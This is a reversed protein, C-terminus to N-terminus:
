RSFTVIAYGDGGAACATQGGAARGPPLGTTLGPAPVSSGMNTTGVCRGGGGGGGGRNGARGAGGCGSGGASGPEIVSDFFAAAQAGGGGGGGGAILIPVGNVSLFSSAGGGGGYGSDGLAGDAEGGGGGGNHGTGGRNGESPRGGPGGGEAVEDEGDEGAGDGGEGGDHAPFGANTGREECGRGGGGIHVELLGSVSLTSAAYGGAGGAGGAVLPTGVSEGAAGGGGWLRVTAYGCGPPVTLRAPSGVEFVLRAPGGCQPVDEDLNGDCDDDIGNGPPVADDSGTSATGPLCSDALRGAECRLQGTRACAGVGCRSQEVAFDEDVNGDCDDDRGDCTVDLSVAADGCRAAGADGSGVGNGDVTPTDVDTFSPLQELGVRGCGLAGLAILLFRIPRLM